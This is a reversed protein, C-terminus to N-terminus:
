ELYQKDNNPQQMAQVLARSSLNAWPHQQLCLPTLQELSIWEKAELGKWETADGKHIHFLVDPQWLDEEEVCSPPNRRIWFFHDPKLLHRCHLLAVAVNQAVMGDNDVKDEVLFTRTQKQRLAQQLIAFATHAPSSLAALCDDMARGPHTNVTYSTAESLTQLAAAFLTATTAELQPQQSLSRTM